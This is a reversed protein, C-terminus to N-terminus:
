LLEKNHHGVKLYRVSLGSSTQLLFTGGREVVKSKAGCLFAGLNEKNQVQIRITCDYGSSTHTADGQVNAQDSWKAMHSYQKSKFFMCTNEGRKEKM